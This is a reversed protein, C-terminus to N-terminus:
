RSRRPCSRSGAARSRARSGRAAPSHRPTRVLRDAQRPDVRACAVRALRREAIERAHRLEVREDLGVARDVLEVGDEAPSLHLSAVTPQRADLVLEEVDTGVQGHREGVAVPLEADSLRRDVPELGVAVVRVGAQGLQLAEDQRASRFARRAQVDRTRDAAAGLAVHELRRPGPGHVRERDRIQVPEAVEQEDEGARRVGTAVSTSHSGPPSRQAAAVSLLGRRREVRRDRTDLVLRQVRRIRHRDIGPPIQPRRTLKRERPTHIRRHIAAPQPRHPLERPEPRRRLRVLPKPIQELMPLRPQRRREIHRRQHAVVRVM